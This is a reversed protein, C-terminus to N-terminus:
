DQDHTPGALARTAANQGTTRMSAYLDDLERRVEKNQNMNTQGLLKSASSLVGSMVRLKQETPGYQVIKTAEDICMEALKRVKDALLEDPASLRNIQISTIETVQSVPVDAISALMEATIGAERLRKLVARADLEDVLEFDTVVEPEVAGM